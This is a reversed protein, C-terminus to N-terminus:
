ITYEANLCSLVTRADQIATGHFLDNRVYYCVDTYQKSNSIDCGSSIAKM